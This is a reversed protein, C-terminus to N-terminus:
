PSARCALHSRYELRVLAKKASKLVNEELEQRYRGQAQEVRTYRVGPQTSNLRQLTPVESDLHEQTPIELSWGKETAM